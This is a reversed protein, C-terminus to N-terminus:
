WPTVANSPSNGSATITSGAYALMNYDNGSFTNGSATVTSGVSAAIIGWTNNTIRNNLVRINFAGPDHYIHVAGGSAGDLTSNQITIDHVAASYGAPYILHDNGGTMRNGIMNLGTFTIHHSGDTLVIVGTGLPGYDTVTFGAFTINAAGRFEAFVSQTGPVSNGDFTVGGSAALVTVPRTRNAVIELKGVAYTGPTLYITDVTNDSIAAVLQAATATPGFTRTVGTQPAPTPPPVPAATPAPAAPAPPPIAVPAPTVVPVPTPLPTPTAIPTQTAIAVPPPLALEFSSSPGPTAPPATAPSASVPAGQLTLATSLMVLSALTTGGSRARLTHSGPTLSKPMRFRTEFTGRASVNYRAVQAGDVQLTGSSKPTFGEGVITVRQGPAVTGAALGLEAQAGATMIMPIFLAPLLLLVVLSALYDAISLRRRGVGVDPIKPTYPRHTTRQKVTNRM